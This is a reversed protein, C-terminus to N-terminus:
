ATGRVAATWAERVSAWIVDAWAAYQADSPHLGDAAFWADGGRRSVEGLDVWGFGRAAAEVRAVANLGDIVLRLRAADGFSGAVASPSVSFDPISLAAVPLSGASAGAGAGAGAGAVREAVSDYIWALSAQYDERGHGRVVDNAGVLVTVVDPTVSEVEVLQHRIVDDSAHGDVGLNRVSVLRGVATALSRAVLTPFGRSRASAGTGFTYSDGLAVYVLSGDGGRVGGASM